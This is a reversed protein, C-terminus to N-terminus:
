VLQAAVGATLWPGHLGNGRLLLALVHHFHWNQGNLPCGTGPPTLGRTTHDWPSATIGPVPILKLKLCSTSMYGHLRHLPNGALKVM